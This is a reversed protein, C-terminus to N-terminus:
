FSPARAGGYKTYEAILIFAGKGWWKTYAIFIISV